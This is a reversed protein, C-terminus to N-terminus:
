TSSARTLIARAPCGAAFAGLSVRIAVSSSYRSFKQALHANLRAFVPTHCLCGVRRPAEGDDPACLFM